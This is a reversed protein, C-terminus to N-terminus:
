DAIDALCDFAHLREQHHGGVVRVHDGVLEVVLGLLLGVDGPELSSGLGFLEEISISVLLFDHVVDEDLEGVVVLVLVVSWLQLISLRDNGFYIFIIACLIISKLYVYVSNIISFVCSNPIM